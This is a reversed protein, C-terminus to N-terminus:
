RASCVPMRTESSVTRRTSFCAPMTSLRGWCWILLGSGSYASCFLRNFLGEVMQVGALHKVVRVFEIDASQGGQAGQPTRATLLNYNGGGPLRVLPIAQTRDMVLSAFGGHEEAEAFPAPLDGLPPLGQDLLMGRARDRHRLIVRIGMSIILNLSHDAGCRPPQHPQIHRGVVWPEDGGKFHPPPVETTFDGM